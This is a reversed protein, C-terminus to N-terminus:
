RRRRKFSDQSKIIVSVLVVGPEVRVQIATCNARKRQKVCLAVLGEIEDSRQSVEVHHMDHRIGGGVQGDDNHNEARMVRLDCGDAVEEGAIVEARGNEDEAVVGGGFLPHLAEVGVCRQLHRQQSTPTPRSLSPCVIRRLAFRLPLVVEARQVAQVHPLVAHEHHTQLGVARAAGGVHVVEVGDVDGHHHHVSEPSCEM